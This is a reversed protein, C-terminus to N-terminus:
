RKSDDREFLFYQCRGVKYPVLFQPTDEEKWENGSKPSRACRAALECTVNTCVIM